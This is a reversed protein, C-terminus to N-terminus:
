NKAKIYDDVIEFSKEEAPSIGFRRKYLVELRSVDKGNMKLNLYNAYLFKKFEDGTVLRHNKEIFEYDVIEERLDSDNEKDKKSSKKKAAQTKKGKVGRIFTFENIIREWSNGYRPAIKELFVKRPATRTRGTEVCKIKVPNPLEVSQDIFKHIYPQRM